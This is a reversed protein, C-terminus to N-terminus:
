ERAGTRRRRTMRSKDPVPEYANVADARDILRHLLEVLTDAEQKTFASLLIKERALVVILVRDHLREGEKTLQIVHRSGNRRDTDAVVLGQTTLKQIVRSVLAKDTGILQCIRTAPIGPEVALMALIRWETIGVGFLRRYKESAGHSLKNSAFTLLAPIYRDIHLTPKDMQGM